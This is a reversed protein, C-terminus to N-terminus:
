LGGFRVRKKIGGCEGRRFRTYIFYVKYNHSLFCQVVYLLVKYYVVLVSIILM